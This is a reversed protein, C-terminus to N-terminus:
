SREVRAGLNLLLKDPQELAEPMNSLSRGTVLAILGLM